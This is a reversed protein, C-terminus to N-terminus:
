EKKIHNPHMIGQKILVERATEYSKLTAKAYAKVMHRCMWKDKKNEKSWRHLSGWGCHCSSDISMRGKSDFVLAVDYKEGKKNTITIWKKLM